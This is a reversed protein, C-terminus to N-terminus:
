NENAESRFSTTATPVFHITNQSFPFKRFPDHFVLAVIDTLFNYIFNICHKVLIWIQSNTKTEAGTRHNIQHQDCLQQRRIKIM